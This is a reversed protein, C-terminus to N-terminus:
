SHKYRWVVQTPPGKMSVLTKWKFRFLINTGGILYLYIQLASANTYLFIYNIREYHFITKRGKNMNLHM